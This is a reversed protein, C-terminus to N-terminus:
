RIFNASAIRPSRPRFTFDYNETIKTAYYFMIKGANIMQGDSWPVLIRTILRHFDDHICQGQKMIAEFHRSTQVIRDAEWLNAFIPCPQAKM